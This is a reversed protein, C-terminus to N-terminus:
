SLSRGRNRELFSLITRNFGEPQEWFLAHGGDAIVALEAHPLTRVFARMLAPPAYRDADGTICLLPPLTAPDFPRRPGGRHPAPGHRAQRELAIWRHMGAPNNARYAPGLERVAASTADSPLTNRMALIESPPAVAITSAMVLTRVREPFRAVFERAVFGGAASAILHTRAIGLHDLLARLDGADDADGDAPRPDSGLFGRRSYGIVRYGAAALVPQQYPWVAHSGTMPHLLVVAEGPGGTDWAFLRVHGLPRLGADVPSQPPPDTWRTQAPVFLGDTDSSAFTSAPIMAAFAGM